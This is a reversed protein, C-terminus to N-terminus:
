CYLRQSIARVREYILNGWVASFMLSAISSTRLSHFKRELTYEIVVSLPLLTLFHTLFIFSISHCGHAECVNCSTMPFPSIGTLFNIKLTFLNILKKERGLCASLNSSM